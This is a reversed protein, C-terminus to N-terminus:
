MAGPISIYQAVPSRVDFFRRVVSPAHDSTIILQVPERITDDFFALHAVIADTTVPARPPFSDRARWPATSPRRRRARHLHRPEDTDATGAGGSLLAQCNTEVVSVRGPM